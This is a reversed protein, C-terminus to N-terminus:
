EDNKVADLRPKPGPVEKMTPWIQATDIRRHRSPSFVSPDCRDFTALKM